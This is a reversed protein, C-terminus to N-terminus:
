RVIGKWQEYGSILDEDAEKMDIVFRRASAMITRLEGDTFDTQDTRALVRNLDWTVRNWGDNGIGHRRFQACALRYLIYNRLGIPIGTRALVELDPSDGNGSRAEGSRDPAARVWDILWTPAMPASCPCGMQWRYPVPYSYVTEGPDARPHKMVMSPAAVVLGGEGKIDVGPLISPREPVTVGHPLRLWLHWGGSPTLANPVGDPLAYGRMYRAFNDPGDEGRKVDLDIVLLRSRSGTAVGINAAKDQSWWAAVDAHHDSARYIGNRVGPEFSVPLMKHPRKEGRALPIVAYGWMLYRMAAAGLGYM